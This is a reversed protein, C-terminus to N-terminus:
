NVGIDPAAALIAVISTRGTDFASNCLVDIVPVAVVEEILFKLHPELAKYLSLRVQSALENQDNHALFQEVRTISDEAIITLTQDVLKSSVQNLQHGLLTQYLVIVRQSINQELQEYALASSEEM